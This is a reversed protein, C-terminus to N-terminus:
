SYLYYSLLSVKLIAAPFLDKIFESVAELNPNEGGVRLTVTYGDGFRSFVSICLLRFVKSDQCSIKGYM